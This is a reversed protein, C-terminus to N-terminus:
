EQRPHLKERFFQTLNYPRVSIVARFKHSVAYLADPLLAIKGAHAALEKALSSRNKSLPELSFMLLSQAVLRQFKSDASLGHRATWTSSASARSIVVIGAHAPGSSLALGSKDSGSAGCGCLEVGAAAGAVAGQGAPFAM